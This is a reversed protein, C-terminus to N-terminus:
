SENKLVRMARFRLVWSRQFRLHYDGEYLFSGDM